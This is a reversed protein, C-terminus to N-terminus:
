RGYREQLPTPLAGPSRLEARFQRYALRTREAFRAAAVLVSDLAPGAAWRALAAAENGHPAAEAGRQHSLATLLGAEQIAVRLKAPKRNFRDLSSRSEEPILERLRYPVDGVSLVDLGATPRAQLMRQARVVRAADSEGAFPWPRTACSALASPRCQKLDFLRNTRSSGGGAVLVTYRPVGLSGIGAIRRAVDLVQFFV